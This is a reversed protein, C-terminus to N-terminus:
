PDREGEPLALSRLKLGVSIHFMCSFGYASRYYHQGNRKDADYGKQGEFCFLLARSDPSVLAARSSAGKKPRLM